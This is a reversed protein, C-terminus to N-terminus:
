ESAPLRTPSLAGCAVSHSTHLCVTRELTASRLKPYAPVLLLGSLVASEVRSSPKRLNVLIMESGGCSAFWANIAVISRSLWAQPLIRVPARM